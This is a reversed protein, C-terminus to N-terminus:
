NDREPYQPRLGEIYEDRDEPNVKMCFHVMKSNAKQTFPLTLNAFLERNPLPTLQVVTQLANPLFTNNVDERFKLAVIDLVVQNHAELDRRINTKVNNIQIVSFVVTLAIGCLSVLIYKSYKACRSQKM